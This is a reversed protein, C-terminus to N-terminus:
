IKPNIQSVNEPKLAHPFSKDGCISFFHKVSVNSQFSFFYIKVIWIWNWDGLTSEGYTQQTQTPCFIYQINSWPRDGQDCKQPIKEFELLELSVDLDRRLAHGNHYLWYKWKPFIPFSFITRLYVFYKRMKSRSQPCFLLSAISCFDSVASKTEQFLHQMSHINQKM